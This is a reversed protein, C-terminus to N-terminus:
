QNRASNVIEQARRYSGLNFANTYGMARLQQKAMGSRAGSLCHLLLVRSKDKVLRPLGTDLEDLPVNVADPLHRSRFEATSRVDVVLAGQQLCQRAVDASM